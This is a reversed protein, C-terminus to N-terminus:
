QNFRLFRELKNLDSYIQRLESYVESKKEKNSAAQFLKNSYIERLHKYENWKERKSPNLSYFNDVPKANNFYQNKNNQKTIM